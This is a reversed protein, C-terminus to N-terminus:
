EGAPLSKLYAILAAMREDDPAMAQGKMPKTLCLNIQHVDNIVTKAIKSFKPYTQIKGGLSAGPDKHCSICAKDAGGLKPDAFLVKGKEIFARIPEDASGGESEAPPKAVLPKELSELNVQDAELDDNPDSQAMGAVLIACFFWVTLWKWNLM